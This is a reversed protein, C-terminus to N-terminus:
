RRANTRRFFALHKPIFELEELELVKAQDGCKLTFTEDTLDYTLSLIGRFESGYKKQWISTLWQSMEDYDATRGLAEKILASDKKEDQKFVEDSTKPMSSIGSKKASIFNNDM